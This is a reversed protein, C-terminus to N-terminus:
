EAVVNAVTERDLSLSGSVDNFTWGGLSILVKLATNQKKLATIGSFLDSPLDDMPVVQFSGPSVYGFAFHLHTISGVPIDKMGMGICNKKYNWGEYYGIIRSQVDGGSGGSGPQDCDSQCGKGCFDDTMGCFGFESCCVNLPCKDGATKAYKGCPAHADCNSWCKDNPSKGDTGCAEPGYNCWGTKACCAGNKCPKNESCSYDDEAATERTVLHFFGEHVSCTGPPARIKARLDLHSTLIPSPAECTVAPKELHEGPTESIFAPSANCVSILYIVFSLCLVHRFRLMIGM